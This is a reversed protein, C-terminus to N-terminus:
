ESQCTPNEVSLAGTLCCEKLAKLGDWPQDQLDKLEIVCPGVLPEFADVVNYFHSPKRSETDPIDLDPSKATVVAFIPQNHGSKRTLTCRQCCHIKDQKRRQPRSLRCQAMYIAHNRQNM